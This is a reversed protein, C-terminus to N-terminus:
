PPLGQPCLIYPYDSGQKKRLTIMQSHDARNVMRITETECDLRASQKNVMIERRDGRRWTSDIDEVVATHLSEVFSYIKIFKSIPSFKKSLSRLVESDADLDSVLKANPQGAVMTQLARTNLGRHPTGFFLISRVPLRGLIEPDLELIVHKVILGGLSHGIFIIPRDQVVPDDRIGMLDQIFAESYDAISSISRSGQVTSDYGYILIRARNQLDRPLYDRLWMEGRDNVWSGFAHGGLGTVAIIRNEHDPENNEANGIPSQLKSQQRSNLLKTSRRSGMSTM